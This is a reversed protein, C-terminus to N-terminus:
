AKKNGGSSIVVGNEVIVFYPPLKKMALYLQATM